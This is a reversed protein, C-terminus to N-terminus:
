TNENSALRSNSNATAPTERDASEVSAWLECHVNWSIHRTNRNTNLEKSKGNIILIGRPVTAEVAEKAQLHFLAKKRLDELTVNSSQM